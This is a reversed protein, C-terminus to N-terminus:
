ICDTTAFLLFLFLHPLVVAKIKTFNTLSDAFMEGKKWNGDALLVQVFAKKKERGLIKM